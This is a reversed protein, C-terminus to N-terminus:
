PQAKAQRKRASPKKAAKPVKGPWGVIREMLDDGSLGTELQDVRGLISIGAEAVSESRGSVLPHWDPLEERHALLRYACTPPLWKLAAANEPDLKMCDKVRRSRHGYDSCRAAKLDLLRCGVDTFYIEGTDEDELKVLCCRGCGDCLSEWEAKSFDTLPRGRWFPDKKSAEGAKGGEKGVPTKGM